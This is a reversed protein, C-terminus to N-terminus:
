RFDRSSVLLKGLLESHDIVQEAILHTVQGGTLPDCQWIGKVTMLQASLVASRHQEFIGPWIIVNVTGTEDELTVFVTGRATEPKQRHTVLGSACSRHGHRLGHLASAPLVRLRELRPRLLALPHRGMSLGLSRYDAVIDEGESPPALLIPEEQVPLHAFLGPLRQSGKAAWHAQRRHGALHRLAGADALARLSRSDLQACSALDAVDDFAFVSLTQLPPLAESIPRGGWAPTQDATQLRELLRAERAAVIRAIAEHSLGRVQNLGLRVAPQSDSDTRDPTDSIGTSLMSSSAVSSAATSSAAKDNNGPHGATFELSCHAQSILVDVTRVEVGHARADRVLQAPAYFGLPQSNLMAALFAAPHHCKIWCSIYVLLAFSAAHSEPFGYEGFGEIQAFVREAFERPYGRALMGNIVQHQFEGLGGKRRWAAMARRLQDAQGASFGAALMAIQMVQEQFIPVGLTRELAPRIEERPYVVPELGQRRRLYPHVMGGQIPGPRVIAVEIVLDYFCRPRLRPLMNMQARSEIQFVGVTDARSIMEYTDADEAPIDQIRFAPIPVANTTRGGQPLRWPDRIQAIFELARRIASLMGLALVDVKLLGLADLDDKDWQIVTREAMAANEVPVLRTLRDRAIVFGGTHQSLHRPFGRLTQALSLWLQVQASRADFGAETLRQDDTSGGSGHAAILREICRTDINLAKGVDRLASRHRYRIVTATLAARHRGYKDYLYQIVEERRQHEFDVDIDPPENRERSIFREFLVSMRAPDVETIGLCYCVASNAASGRGQCLIGRGRAFRVIDAVTLFYPEYHLDSILSLEHNIQASVTEPVGQPYRIPIGENVLARLWTTPSHGQPVIEDPYEYRLEDLSFRSCAAVELTEELLATPYLQGLRLRSRLHQEANPALAFGCQAVPQNLRIATLTDHLPKRSRRHFHVDGAAVLPLNTRRGLARLHELWVADHGRALLEVAIWTRGTFCDRIFGAQFDLKSQHQVAMAQTSPQAIFLATCHTVGQALDDRLLRYQGKSARARATSILEALNGYGERNRAILVLRSQWPSDPFVEHLSFEAGILLPLGSDRAQLHARVVGALSCEDTIALASYGLLQARETLEEPHSAGRLFSFNSVCHLEAYAPLMSTLYVTDTRGKLRM